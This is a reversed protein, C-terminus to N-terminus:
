VLLKRIAELKEVYQQDKKLSQIERHITLTNSHITELLQMIEQQNSDVWKFLQPDIAVAKKEMRPETPVLTKLIPTIQHMVNDEVRYIGLSSRKMFKRRCLHGIADAIQKRSLGAIDINFSLKEATIAERKLQLEASRLLVERQISGEGPINIAKTTM